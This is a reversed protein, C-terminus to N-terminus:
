GGKLLAGLAYAEKARFGTLFQIGARSPDIDSVWRVQAEMRVPADLGPLEFSVRLKDGMSLPPSFGARVMAGGLSLNVTTGQVTEEGRVLEIDREIDFRESSRQEM